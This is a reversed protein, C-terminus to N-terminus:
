ICALGCQDEAQCGGRSEDPERYLCVEDCDMRWFKEEQRGREEGGM